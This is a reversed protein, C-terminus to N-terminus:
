SFVMLFLTSSKLEGGTDFPRSMAQRSATTPERRSAQEWSRLRVPAIDIPSSSSVLVGQAQFIEITVSRSHSTKNVVNCRTAIGAWSAPSPLPFVGM